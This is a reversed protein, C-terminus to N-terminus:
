SRTTGILSLLVFVPLLMISIPNRCTLLYYTLISPICTRNLLQVKEVLIIRHDKDNSKTLAKELANALGVGAFGGGVIVINKVTMNKKIIQNILQYFSFFPFEPQFQPAKYTNNAYRIILLPM